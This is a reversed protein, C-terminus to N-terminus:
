HHQQLIAKWKARIEDIVEADIKEWEWKLGRRDKIDAILADIIRNAIADKRSESYIKKMLEHTRYARKQSYSTTLWESVEEMFCDEVEKWHEVLANWEPSLSRMEDLRSRIEPIHKILKLCRKFDDPDHPHTNFKRSDEVGAIKFALAMSSIGTEGTALWQLIETKIDIM